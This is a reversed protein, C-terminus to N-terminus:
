AERLRNWIRKWEKHPMAYYGSVVEGEKVDRAVVAGMLVKARNGINVGATVSVGIGIWADEGIRVSGGICTLAVILTRTGIRVNHAIHVLNDIKVDDSIVTAENEFTARDIACNAGIEVRDGIKVGGMHLMKRVIKNGIDQEYRFGDTGIVAGADILCDKGITVNDYICVNSMIQTRDGIVVNKGVYVGSAIYVLKGIKASGDIKAVPSIGVEAKDNYFLPQIDMLANMVNNVVIYVNQPYKGCYDALSEPILVVAGNLRALYKIYKGSRVFSVRDKVYDDIPCTGSIGIATDYSGVIKGEVREALDDISIEM